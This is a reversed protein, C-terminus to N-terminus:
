ALERRLDRWDPLRPVGVVALAGAYVVIGLAVRLLLGIWGSSPGTLAIAVAMIGAAAAVRVLLAPAVEAQWGSRRRVMMWLMTAYSVLTVVAPVVLTPLWALLGVNLAVNAGAATGSAALMTRTRAQVFLVQAVLMSTGYLFIGAAVIPVVASALRAVEAGAYLRLVDRGLVVCGACFPIAVLMFLRYTLRALARAAGTRGADVAQMLMQPVVMGAARPLLLPLSGVTYAASYAGVFARPLFLALIYRDSIALVFEVMYSVTLPFGIRIDEALAAVTPRVIPGGIEWGIRVAVPLAATMLVATQVALLGNISLRGTSALAVIAVVQGSSQLTSHVTCAFIRGTYRLYSNTQAFAALGFLYLGSLLPSFTDSVGTPLVRAVVWVPLVMVGLMGLQFLLQPYFLRRRDAPASQSPLGRDKKYGVGLSSIGFLFGLVSNLLVWTGYTAVGVGGVMLPVLVIGQVVGALQGILAISNHRLYRRM